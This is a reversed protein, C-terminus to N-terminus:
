SGRRGSSFDLRRSLIEDAVARVTMAHGDAHARIALLADAPSADLQAVVMGTAQHVERCRASLAVGDLVTTLAIQLHALSAPRPAGARSLVTNVMAVVVSSLEDSEELVAVDDAPVVDAGLPGDLRIGIWSAPAEARLVYDADAGAIGVSGRGLRGVPRGGGTELRLGGELPVIASLPGDAAVTVSLSTHWVRAIRLGPARIADAHILVSPRPDVVAGWERFWRRAEPEGGAVTTRSHESPPPTPTM